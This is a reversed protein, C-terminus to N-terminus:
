DYIKCYTHKYNHLTKEESKLLGFIFIDIKSQKKKLYKNKLKYLNRFILM